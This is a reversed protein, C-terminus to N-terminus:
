KSKQAQWEEHTNGPMLNIGKSYESMKEFDLYGCLDAWSIVSNQKPFQILKCKLKLQSKLLLMVTLESYKRMGSM